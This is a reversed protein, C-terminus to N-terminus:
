SIRIDFINNLIHCSKVFLIKMDYVYTQKEKILKNTINKIKMMRNAKKRSNKVSKPNQKM